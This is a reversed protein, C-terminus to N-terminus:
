KTRTQILSQKEGHRLHMIPPLSLSMGCTRPAPRDLGSTVSWHRQAGRTSDQPASAKFSSFSMRCWTVCCCRRSSPSRSRSFSVNHELRAWTSRVRRPRSHSRHLRRHAVSRARASSSCNLASRFRRSVSSALQCPWAAPSLLARSATERRSTSLCLHLSSRRENSICSEVSSACTLWSSASVLWGNEKPLYWGLASVSWLSRACCCRRRESTSLCSRVLWPSSATSRLRRVDCCTTCSRRSISCLRTASARRLSALSASTRFACACVRCDATALSSPRRFSSWSAASSATRSRPPSCEHM